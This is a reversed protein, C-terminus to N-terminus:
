EYKFSRVGIFFLVGALVALVAVNPLIDILTAQNFILVNFSDMAWAVPTLHGIVRMFDPVISLPWWAGGLGACALAVLTIVSSAQLETKIYSAFVMGLATIALTYTIVVVIIAILDSGFNLGVVVGFAMVIAFQLIGLLFRGLIKGGIIEMKSVPMVVVRQLTWQKWERMLLAAGGLVTFMVYMTAMGPVSQGFGSQTTSNSSSTGGATLTYDIGVPQNEWSQLANEYVASSFATQDAQDNFISGEEGEGNLAKGLEVGVRAATVSGNIPQLVAEISRLVADGTTITGLSAYELSVPQFARVDATYNEPIVIMASSVGDRVREMPEIPTEENIQCFNAEDNDMPCLVLAPNVERLNQLLQSSLEGEDLNVVDVRLKDVFSGGGFAFGLIFTMVLPLAVLGIVNSRDSLFIRVDNVAIIWIRRM